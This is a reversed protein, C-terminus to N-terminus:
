TNSRHREELQALLSSRSACVFLVPASELYQALHKLLRISSTDASYLNDLLFVIPRRTAARELYNTLATFARRQTQTPDEREVDIYPSDPFDVQCLLGILHTMERLRGDSQETATSLIGQVLKQRSLEDEENEYIEFFARLIQCFLLLPTRRWRDIRRRERPNRFLMARGSIQQQFATLLRTKGIGLEGTLTFFIPGEGVEVREFVRVMRAMERERGVLPPDYSAGAADVSSEVEYFATSSLM